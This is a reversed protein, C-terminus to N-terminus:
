KNNSEQLKMYRSTLSKLKTARTICAVALNLLEKKSIMSDDTVAVITNGSPIFKTVAINDRISSQIAEAFKIAGEGSLTIYVQNPYNKIETVLRCALLQQELENDLIPANVQKEGHRRGM